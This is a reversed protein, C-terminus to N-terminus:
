GRLHAAIAAELAEGTRGPDIGLLQAVAPAVAKGLSQAESLRGNALMDRMAKAKRASEEAALRDLAAPPAIKVLAFWDAPIPCLSIEYPRWQRVIRVESLDDESGRPLSFGMSCATLMGAEVMTRADQGRRTPAFRAIAFAGGLTADTWAMEVVGLIADLHREHDALLPARGSNLLSLDAGEMLLRTAGGMGRRVVHHSAFHLLVRGGGQETRHPAALGAVEAREPYAADIDLPTSPEIDLATSM